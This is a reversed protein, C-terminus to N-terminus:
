FFYGRDRVLVAEVDRLTMLGLEEERQMRVPIILQIEDLIALTYAPHNSVADLLYPRKLEGKDSAILKLM